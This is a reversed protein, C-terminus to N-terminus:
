SHDARFRYRGALAQLGYEVKQGPKKNEPSVTERNNFWYAALMRIAKRIGSPIEQRATGFGAKFRLRYASPSAPGVYPWTRGKSRVVSMTSMLGPYFSYLADDVPLYTGDPQLWDFVITEADSSVIPRLPFEQSIDVSAPLFVEWEEILLCCGNLWGEPGSLFDYAAEINDKIFQDERSHTIRAAMKVEDLPVVALKQDQTLLPSVRRPEMAM